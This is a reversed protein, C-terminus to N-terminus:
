RKVIIDHTKSATHLTYHIAITKSRMFLCCSPKVFTKVSKHMAVTIITHFGIFGTPLYPVCIFFDSCQVLQVNLYAHANNYNRKYTDTIDYRRICIDVSHFM